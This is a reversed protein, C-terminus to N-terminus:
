SRACRKGAGNPSLIGFTEGQKVSFSIGGVTTFDGYKKVLNQVEIIPM